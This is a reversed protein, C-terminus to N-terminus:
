NKMVFEDLNLIANAVLVMAKDVDESEQPMNGVAKIEPKSTTQYLKMLVDLKAPSPKTGIALEYGREIQQSIDQGSNKMKM